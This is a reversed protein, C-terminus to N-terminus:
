EDEEDPKGDVVKDAEIEYESEFSDGRSDTLLYGKEKLKEKVQKFSADGFGRMKRLQDASFELLDRVSDVKVGFTHSIGGILKNYVGSPLDLSLLPVNTDIQVERKVEEVETIYQYKQIEAKINAIIDFHQKLYEAALAIAEKYDISLNTDITLVLKDLNYEQGERTKQVEFSFKKIPTFISDVAIVFSGGLSAIKRNKILEEIIDKNDDYVVYGTGKIAYFEADFEIDKALTAIVKEKNVVEVESPCELDGAKVVGKSNKTIKLTYVENEDGPTYLKSSDAFKLVVDKINLVIQTIDEYVGDVATFENTVGKIAVGIIAVGPMSSLLVRRLANGITIGYGSALPSIEVTQSFDTNKQLAALIELKKQGDNDIIKSLEKDNESIKRLRDVSFVEKSKLLQTVEESLDLKDITNVLITKPRIFNTKRM